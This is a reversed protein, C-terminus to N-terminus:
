QLGDVIPRVLDFQPMVEQHAVSLVQLLAAASLVTPDVVDLAFEEWSLVALLKECWDAAFSGGALLASNSVGLQATRLGQVM